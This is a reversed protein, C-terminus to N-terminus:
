REEEMRIFKEPHERLCLVILKGMKECLFEEVADCFTMVQWCQLEEEFKQIISDEPLFGTKFTFDYLENAVRVIDELKQKELYKKVSDITQEREEKRKQKQIIGEQKYEDLNRNIQTQLFSLDDM